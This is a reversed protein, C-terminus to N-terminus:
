FSLSGIASLGLHDRIGVGVGETQGQSRKATKGRGAREGSGSEDSTNEWIRETFMQVLHTERHARTKGM